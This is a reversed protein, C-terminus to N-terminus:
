NKPQEWWTRLTNGLMNGIVGWKIGNVIGLTIRKSSMYNPWYKSKYTEINSTYVNKYQCTKLTEYRKKTIPWGFFSMTFLSNQVQIAGVGDIVISWVLMANVFSEEEVKKKKKL